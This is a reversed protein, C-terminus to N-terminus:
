AQEWEEGQDLDYCTQCLLLGRPGAHMACVALGCVECTFKAPEACQQVHQLTMGMLTECREITETEPLTLINTM